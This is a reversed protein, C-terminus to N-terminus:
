RYVALFGGVQWQLRSPHLRGQLGEQVRDQVSRPQSGRGSPNSITIPHPHSVRDYVPQLVGWVHEKPVELGLEEQTERLATHIVDQDDPDCKGGPFSFPCLSDQSWLDDPPLKARQAM